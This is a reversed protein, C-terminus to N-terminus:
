RKGEGGRGERTGRKGEVVGERFCGEIVALQIPVLYQEKKIEVHFNNILIQM